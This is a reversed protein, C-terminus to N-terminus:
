KVPECTKGLDFFRFARNRYAIDEMNDTGVVIVDDQLSTGTLPKVHGTKCNQKKGDGVDEVAESTGVYVFPKIVINKVNLTEKNDFILDVMAGVSGVQAKPAYLNQTISTLGLFDATGVNGNLNVSDSSLIMENVSLVEGTETNKVILKMGPLLSTYVKGQYESKFEISIFEVKVDCDFTKQANLMTCKNTFTKALISGQVAVQFRQLSIQVSENSANASDIEFRPDLFGNLTAFKKFSAETLTDANMFMWQTTERIINYDKSNLERRPVPAYKKKIAAWVEPDLDNGCNGGVRQAYKCMGDMDEFRLLYYAMNFEHMILRAQEEITMQNFLRSDIWISDETQYAVQQVQNAAMEVGLVKKPIDKLDFEGLYWTKIALLNQNRNQKKSEESEPFAKNIVPLVYRQAAVLTNPDIIYSEIMRGNVMNGGGGDGTGQVSSGIVPKAAAASSDKSAEFKCASLFQSCAVLTLVTMVPKM